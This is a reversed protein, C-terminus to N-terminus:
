SRIHCSNTSICMSPHNTCALNFIWSRDDDTIVKPKGLRPLDNLATEMTFERLKSLCKKVTNKNVGNREAVRDDSYGALYDLIISARTVRRKELKTSSRIRNLDKIEEESIDPKLYKRKFVM